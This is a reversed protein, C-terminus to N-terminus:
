RDRKRNLPIFGFGISLREFTLNKISDQLKFFHFEHNEYTIYQDHTQSM